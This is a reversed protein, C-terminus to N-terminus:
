PKRSTASPKATRADALVELAQQLSKLEARGLSLLAVPPVHFSALLRRKVAVGHRTLVVLKVRRDTKSTLRKALRSRELRNVIWTANSADCNWEAALARM